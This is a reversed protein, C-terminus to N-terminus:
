YLHVVPATRDVFKTLCQNQGSIYRSYTNQGDIKQHFPNIHGGLTFLNPSKEGVTLYNRSPM